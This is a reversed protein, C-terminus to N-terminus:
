AERCRKTARRAPPPAIGPGDPHCLAGRPLHRLQVEAPQAQDRVRLRAAAARHPGQDHHQGVGPVAEDPGGEALLQLVDDGSQFGAQDKKPPMELYRTMSLKGAATAPTSASCGRNVRLKRSHEWCRPKMQSGTM